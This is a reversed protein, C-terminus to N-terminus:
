VRMCVLVTQAQVVHGPPTRKCGELAMLIYFYNFTSAIVLYSEQRAWEHIPKADM